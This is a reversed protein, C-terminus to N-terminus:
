IMHLIEFKLFFCLYYKKRIKEDTGEKFQRNQGNLVNLYTQNAIKLTHVVGKILLSTTREDKSM